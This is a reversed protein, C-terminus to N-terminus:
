LGRIVNGVNRTWEYNFQGELKSEWIFAGAIDPFEAKVARWARLTVPVPSTNYYANCMFGLIQRNAPVGGSVATRVKDKAVGSLRDDHAEPFDYLMPAWYDYGDLGILRAASLWKETWPDCMNPTFGIIFGKGYEAKLKSCLSKLAEQNWRGGSPELDVDIGTFGYQSVLAKISGFMESAQTENMLYIGGDSSGGIGISVKKGKTLLGAIDAKALEPTQKVPAWSIKGTGGRASQAMAMIFLTHINVVDAPLQGITPLEWGHMWLASVPKALASPSPHPRKLSKRKIKSFLGEQFAQAWTINDGSVGFTTIFAVLISKLFANRTLM